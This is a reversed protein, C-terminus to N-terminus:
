LSLGVFGSTAAMFCQLGHMIPSSNSAGLRFDLNNEIVMHPLVRKGDIEDVKYASTKRVFTM